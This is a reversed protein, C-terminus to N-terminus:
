STSAFPGSGVSVMCPSRAFVSMRRSWIAGNRADAVQDVSFRQTFFFLAGVPFEVTTLSVGDSRLLKCALEMTLKRSISIRSEFLQVLTTPCPIKYLGSKKGASVSHHRFSRSHLFLMVKLRFHAIIM